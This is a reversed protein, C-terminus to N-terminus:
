AYRVSTIEKDIAAIIELVDAEDWTAIADGGLEEEYVGIRAEYTGLPVNAGIDLRVTYEISEGSAMTGTVTPAPLVAGSVQEVLLTMIRISQPAGLNHVTPYIWFTEGRAKTIM